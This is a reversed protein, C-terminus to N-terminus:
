CLQFLGDIMEHKEQRPNSTIPFNSEEICFVQGNEDTTTISKGWMLVTTNIFNIMSQAVVPKPVRWM